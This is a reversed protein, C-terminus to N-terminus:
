KALYAEYGAQTIEIAEEVGFDKLVQTYETDFNALDAAGTIYKLVMEKAHTEVNNMIEARRESADAELM